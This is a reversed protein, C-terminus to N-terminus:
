DVWNELVLNPIQRFHRQNRTVVTARNALAVSAILLDVHGIKKLPKQGRLRELERAARDDFAVILLQQLLAESRELWSQARMLQEVDAAKLLFECRARLVEAKTIIAVGTEPDDCQRLRQAAKEHGAHLYTLTDADLLHM